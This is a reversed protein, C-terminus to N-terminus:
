SPLDETEHTLVARVAAALPGDLAPPPPKGGLLRRRRAGYPLDVTALVVRERASPGGLRQALAAVTEVVPANVAELDPTPGDVLDEVRMGLLLRTDETHERAFALLSLAMAVGAEVPDPRLSAERWREQSRRAAREWAATLLGDRSGFAHYLSGTPAGSARAIAAVTAARAGGRLVIARAADLVADPSHSRPRPM